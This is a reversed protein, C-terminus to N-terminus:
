PMKKIIVHFSNTNDWPKNDNCALYLRGSSEPVIVKNSGIPFYTTSDLYQVPDYEVNGIAGILSYRPADPLPFGTNGTEPSLGNPGSSGGSPEGIFIQGSARIEIEEGEIFDVGSDTWIGSYGPMTYTYSNGKFTLTITISGSNDWPVNDNCALFLTGSHSSVFSTEDGIPFYTTQSHYNEPDYKVGGIAGILSYRPADPLPFGTNGSNPPQGAPGCVTGSGDEIGIQGTAEINIADGESIGIASGNVNRFSWTAKGIPVNVETTQTSAGNGNINDESCQINVMLCAVILSTIVNKKNM